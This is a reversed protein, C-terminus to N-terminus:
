ARLVGQPKQFAAHAILLHCLDCAYGYRGKCAPYSFFPSFVQWLCFFTYVYYIGLIYKVFCM